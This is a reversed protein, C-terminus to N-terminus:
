ISLSHVLFTACVEEASEEGAPEDSHLLNHEKRVKTKPLYRTLVTILTGVSSAAYSCFSHESERKRYRTIGNWDFNPSTPNPDM